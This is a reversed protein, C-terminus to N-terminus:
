LKVNAHTNVLKEQTDNWDKDKIACINVNKSCIRHPRKPEGCKKCTYWGIKPPVYRGEKRKKQAPTIKSKPVGMKLIVLDFVSQEVNSKVSEHSYELDNYHNFTSILQPQYFLDNEQISRFKSIIFKLHNALRIFNM